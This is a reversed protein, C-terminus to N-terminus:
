KSSQSQYPQAVNYKACVDNIAEGLLDNLTRGVNWPQAQVLLLASRVQPPYQGGIMITGKSRERRNNAPKELPTTEKPMRQKSREHKSSTSM